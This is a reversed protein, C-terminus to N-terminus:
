SEPPTLQTGHITPNQAMEVPTAAVEGVARDAYKEMFVFSLTPKIIEHKFIVYGLRDYLRINRESQDGTFLEFRKASDFQSEIQTMLATGIGRGQVEPHVILREIYATDAVQFGRVSGVIQGTIQAKFFIKRTFDTNLEDITQTLPPLGFDNYLEAESQYALQQLELITVADESSAQIIDKM